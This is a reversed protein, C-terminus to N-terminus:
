WSASEMSGLNHQATTHRRAITSGCVKYFDEKNGQIWVPLLSSCHLGECVFLNHFLKHLYPYDLKDDFHLACTYSLFIGFEHLSGHCLLNTSTTKKEVLIRDYKQNKTTAKLGQWPLTCHLFYMLGYALSELNDRCAQKVGFYRHINVLSVGTHFIFPTASGRLSVWLWHHQGVYKTAVSALIWWSFDNCQLRMWHWVMSCLTHRKLTEQQSNPSVQFTAASNASLTVGSCKWNLMSYVISGRYMGLTSNRCQMLAWGWIPTLHPTHTNGEM